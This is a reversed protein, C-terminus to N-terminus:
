SLLVNVGHVDVEVFDGDSLQGFAVLVVGLAAHAAVAPPEVDPRGVLSLEDVVCPLAVRDYVRHRVAEREVDHVPRHAVVAAVFDDVPLLAADRQALVDRAYERVVAAVEVVELAVLLRDDEAVREHDVDAPAAVALPQLPELGDVYRALPERLLFQAVGDVGARPQAIGLTVEALAPAGGPADGVSVDAARGDPLLQKLCGQPPRGVCVARPADLFVHCAVLVVVVRQCQPLVELADDRPHLACEHGLALFEHPRDIPAAEVVAVVGLHVVGRPELGLGGTEDHVVVHRALCADVGVEERAVLSVQGDAREGGGHPLRGVLTLAADARHAPSVEGEVPHLGVM